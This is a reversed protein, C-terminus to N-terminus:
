ADDAEPGPAREPADLVVKLRRGVRAAFVDDALDDEPAEFPIDEFPAQLRIVAGEGSEEIGQILERYDLGMVLLEQRVVDDLRKVFDSAM